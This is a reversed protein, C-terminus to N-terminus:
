DNNWHKRLLAAAERYGISNVGDGRKARGELEDALEGLLARDPPSDLLLMLKEVVPEEEAARKPFASKGRALRAILLSKEKPSFSEPPRQYTAPSSDVGSASLDPQDAGAEARLREVEAEHQALPIVPVHEVIKAHHPDCSCCPVGFGGIMGGCRRCVPVKWSCGDPWSM